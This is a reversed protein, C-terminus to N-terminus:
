SGSISRRALLFLARHMSIGVTEFEGTLVDSDVDTLMSRGGGSGEILTFWVGGTLVALLWGDPM